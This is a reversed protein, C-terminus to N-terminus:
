FIQLPIHFTLNNHIKLLGFLGPPPLPFGHHLIASKLVRADHASGEWGPLVYIFEMDFNVAVLVNQSLFGHRNRHAEQEYEPPTCTIHTGDIAGVCNQM